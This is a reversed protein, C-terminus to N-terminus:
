LYVRSLLGTQSASICRATAELSVAHKFARSAFAPLVTEPPHSLHPSAHTGQACLLRLHYAIFHPRFLARFRQQSLADTSPLAIPTAIIRYDDPKPQHTTAAIYEPKTKREISFKSHSNRRQGLPYATASQPVPSNNVRPLFCDGAGRSSKIHALHSITIDGGASARAWDLDGEM